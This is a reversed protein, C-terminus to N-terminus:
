QHTNKIFNTYAPEIAEMLKKIVQSYNYNKLAFSLGTEAIQEREKENLLYYNIKQLCENEDKFTVCVNQKELVSINQAYRTLLFSGVSLVEKTRMNVNNGMATNVYDNVVIKSQKYIRYMDIGSTEGQWCEILKPYNSILNGKPGWWKFNIHQCLFNMLETKISQDETGLLGVFCVDYIKNEQSLEKVLREDIGYELFYSPIGLAKFFEFYEPTLAILFNSRSPQFNIAHATNSGILSVIFVKRSFREWFSGDITLPERVFIIDPKYSIIYKELYWNRKERAFKNKLWHLNKWFFIIDIIKQNLIFVKLFNLQYLLGTKKIQNDNILKEILEEDLDIFERAEWGMKNMSHTFYDSLYSRLSMQWSYYDNYNMTQIIEHNEKQKQYLYSVPYFSDIKLLKLKKM